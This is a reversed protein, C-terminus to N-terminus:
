PTSRSSESNLARLVYRGILMRSVAAIPLVSAVRRIMGPRSILFGGAVAAGIALVPHEILKQMVLSRPFKGDGAPARDDHGDLMQRLELRSEALRAAASMRREEDAAKM